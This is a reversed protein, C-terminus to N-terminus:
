PGSSQSGRLTHRVHVTNKETPLRYANRHAREAVSRDSGKKHAPVEQGDRGTSREVRVRRRIAARRSSNCNLLRGFWRDVTVTQRTVCLVGM